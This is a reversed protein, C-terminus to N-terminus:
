TNFSGKTRVTGSAAVSSGGYLVGLLAAAVHIRLAGAQLNGAIEVCGQVLAGAFLSGLLLLSISEVLRVDMM